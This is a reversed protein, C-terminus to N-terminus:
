ILLYRCTRANMATREPGQRAWDVCVGSPRFCYAGMRGETLALKQSISGLSPYATFSTPPPTYTMDSLPHCDANRTVSAPTITKSAGSLKPFLMGDAMAFTVSLGILISM